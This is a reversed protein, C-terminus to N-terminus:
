IPILRQFINDFKKLELTSTLYRLDIREIIFPIHKAGLMYLLLKQICLYVQSLDIYYM